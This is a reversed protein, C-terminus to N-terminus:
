FVSGFALFIDQIQLFTAHRGYDVSDMEVLESFTNAVPIKAVRGFMWEQTFEGKEGNGRFNSKKLVM